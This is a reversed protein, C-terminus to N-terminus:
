MRHRGGERCRRLEHETQIERLFYIFMLFFNLFAFERAEGWLYQIM